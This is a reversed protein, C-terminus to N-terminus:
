SNSEFAAILALMSLLGVSAGVQLSADTTCGGGACRLNCKDADCKFHCGGGSCSLDCEKVGPWPCAMTCGGGDCGLYCMEADCESNCGGGTCIQNCAKVNPPCTMECGGGYCSHTCSGSIEANCSSPPWCGTCTGDNTSDVTTGTLILSLLSVILPLAM